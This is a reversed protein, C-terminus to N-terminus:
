SSENTADTSAAPTGPLAPAYTLFNTKNLYSSAFDSGAPTTHSFAFEERGLAKIPLFHSRMADVLRTAIGRRQFQSSVWIKAIGAAVKSRGAKSVGEDLVRLGTEKNKLVSYSVRDTKDIVEALLIGAVKGEAVFMFAKSQDPNRIQGSRDDGESTSTGLLADVHDLVSSVKEWHRKPDNPAVMVVRGDHCESVCNENKWGQFKVLSTSSSHRLEHVKEETVDGATYVFGCTNCNVAGIVKQGADIVMQKKGDKDAETTSCTVDSSKGTGSKKSAPTTAKTPTSRSRTMRRGGESQQQQVEFVPFNKQPTGRRKVPTGKSRKQKVEDETVPEMNNLINQITAHTDEPEKTPEAEQTAKTDTAAAEPEKAPVGEEGGEAHSVSSTDATAEEAADLAVAMAEDDTVYMAYEDQSMENGTDTLEDGPNDELTTLINAVSDAIEASDAEEKEVAAEDEQSGASNATSNSHDFKIPSPVSRRGKRVPSKVLAMMYENTGNPSFLKKKDGCPVVKPTTPTKRKSKTDNLDQKAQFMADFVDKRQRINRQQLQEYESLAPHALHPALKRPSRRLSFVPQGNKIEYSVNADQRPVSIKGGPTGSTSKRAMKRAKRNCSKADDVLDEFFSRGFESTASKIISRSAEKRSEKIRALREKKVKEEREKIRKQIAKKSPKRIAHSCGKGGLVKKKKKVVRGSLLSKKSRLKDESSKSNKPKLPERKKGAETTSDVSSNLSEDHASSNEGEISSNMSTDAYESRYKKSPSVVGYFAKKVIPSYKASPQEPEVPAKRASTPMQMKFHDPIPKSKKNPSKGPTFPSGITSKWGGPSSANLPSFLERRLSRVVGASKPTRPTAPQKQQEPTKATGSSRRRLKVSPSTETSAM